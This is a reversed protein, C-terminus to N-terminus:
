WCGPSTRSTRSPPPTPSRRRARADARRGDARERHGDGVARGHLDRVAQLGGEPALIESRATARSGPASTRSPTSTRTSAAAASSTAAPRRCRRRASARSCRAPSCSRRASRPRSSRTRRRAPSGTPRCACSRVRGLRGERRAGELVAVQAETDRIRPVNTLVVEEETLLCAAIIPLAANKNGAAVIEGSLPAGGTIVFKEMPASPLLASCPAVM